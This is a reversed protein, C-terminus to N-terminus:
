VDVIKKLRKINLLAKEYKRYRFAAINQILLFFALLVYPATQPLYFSLIITTIIFFAISQVLVAFRAEYVGGKKEIMACIAQGGDLPLFPLLNMLLLVIQIRMLFDAGAVPLVFAVLLLCFTAFPGALAVIFRKKRRVAYSGAITLEGGYPMIVCSSVRLGLLKAAILHGMEHILLSVFILTYTSLNGSMLLLLFVPILIPHLRIKM